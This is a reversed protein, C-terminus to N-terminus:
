QVGSGRVISASFGELWDRLFDLRRASEAVRDASLRDPLGTSRVNHPDIPAFDAFSLTLVNGCEMLFPGFADRLEVLRRSHTELFRGALVKDNACVRVVRDFAADGTKVTRMGNNALRDLISASLDSVADRVNGSESRVSMHFPVSGMLRAKWILHQSVRYSGTEDNDPDGHGDAKFFERQLRYIGQARFSDGGMSLVLFTVTTSLRWTEEPGFLAPDLGGSRPVYRAYAEELVAPLEAGYFRAAFREDRGHERVAWLILLVFPLACLCVFLRDDPFGFRNRAVQLLALSGFALLALIAAVSRRGRAALERDVRRIRGDVAPSGCAQGAVM